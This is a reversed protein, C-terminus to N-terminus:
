DLPELKIISGHHNNGTWFTVPTTSNDVFVRRINTSQPLLYGVSRGSRTDIRMITDANMGGSWIEGNRDLVADYPAFNPPLPYEKIEQTKLDIVGAQDAAFEAFALRGDATMHGRRPRSAPTPVPYIVTAGAADTKGVNRDAFDMFWLNNDADTAIGYAGHAGKPFEKFPEVHEFKGSAPDLRFFTRSGGESFWIKGDVDSHRPDIMGIQVKPSDFEAPLRFAEVKGTAKDLRAVGAQYMMAFWPNGQPDLELDLSGVPAGPKFEPVTYETVQGTRPDLKGVTLGGFNTYWVTGDADAIVDHPETLDPHPLEYETILVRTARGKPRPATKLAYSPAGKSRNISAYYDALKRLVDGKPESTPTRDAAVQPHSPMSMAGYRMMRPILAMFEDTTHTSDLIRRVTHCTTCGALLHRQPSDPVSAMWDANTLQSALDSRKTLALDATATRGAAIDVAGVGALDYGAARITLAYHGAELQGPPFSYRGQADTAVTLRVASGDKRASVLVGEMAGEERSSVLGTLSGEAAEVVATGACVALMATTALLLRRM